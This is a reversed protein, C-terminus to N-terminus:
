EINDDLIFVFLRATCNAQQHWGESPGTKGNVEFVEQVIWRVLIRRSRSFMGDVACFGKMQLPINIFVTRIKRVKKM